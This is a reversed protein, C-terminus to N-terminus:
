EPSADIQTSNLLPETVGIHFRCHTIQLRRSALMHPILNILDKSLLGFERNRAGLATIESDSPLGLSAATSPDDTNM